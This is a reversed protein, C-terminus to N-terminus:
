MFVATMLLCNQGVILSNDSNELYVKTNQIKSQLLSQINTSDCAPSVLYKDCTITQINNIDMETSIVSEINM